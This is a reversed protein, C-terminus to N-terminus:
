TKKRNQETGKEEVEIDVKKRNKGKQINKKPSISAM